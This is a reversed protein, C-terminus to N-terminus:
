TRDDDSKDKDDLWREVTEIGLRHIMCNIAHALKRRKENPYGLTKWFSARHKGHSRARASKGEARTRWTV